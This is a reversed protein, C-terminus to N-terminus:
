KALSTIIGKNLWQENILDGIVLGDYEYLSAM